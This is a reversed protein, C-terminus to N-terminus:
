RPAPPRPRACQSGLEHLRGGRLLDALQDTRTSRTTGLGSTRASWGAMAAACARPMATRLSISRAASRARTGITATVPVFPFVVTVVIIAAISSADPTRVTAAPLM